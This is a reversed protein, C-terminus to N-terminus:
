GQMAEHERSVNEVLTAFPWLRNHPTVQAKCGVSCGAERMAALLDNLRASPLTDLLMFECTPVDGSYPLSTRKFGPLGMVAGVPNGLDDPSVTRVRLGQVTLVARVADGRETGADLNYLAALPKRSADQAGKAKNTKKPKKGM